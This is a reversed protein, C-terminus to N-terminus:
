STYPYSDTHECKSQTYTGPGPGDLCDDGGAGGTEADHEAGPVGGPVLCDSKAGAKITDANQTGLWLQSGGSGRGTNWAGGGYYMIRSPHIGHGKCTAPTVDDISITQTLQDVGGASQITNAATYAGFSLCISLFVTVLAV